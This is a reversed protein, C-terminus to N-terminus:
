GGRGATIKNTRQDLAVAIENVFVPDRIIQYAVDKGDIKVTINGETITVDGADIGFKDSLGSGLAENFWEDEPNNLKLFNNLYKEVDFIDVEPEIYSSASFRGGGIGSATGGGGRRTIQGIGLMDLEESTLDSFPDNSASPLGLTGIFDDWSMNGTIVRALNFSFDKIGGFFGGVGLLFKSIEAILNLVTTSDDLFSALADQFTGDSLSKIFDNMTTLVGELGGNQVFNIVMDGVADIIGRDGAVLVGLEHVFSQWPTLAKEAETKTGLSQELLELEKRYAQLNKKDEDTFYGGQRKTLLDEVATNLEEIRAIKAEYDARETESLTTDDLRSRFADAILKTNAKFSDAFAKVTADDERKGDTWEKILDDYWENIKAAPSFANGSEDTFLAKSEEEVGFLADSLEGLKSILKPVVTDTLETNVPSMIKGWFEAWNDTLTSWQGSLTKSANEMGGYFANGESVATKFADAVEKASIGGKSMRAQLQDMTEGTKQAIYTLPNFGVNILQKYDQTLLKGAMSIQGYVSALTSLKNKDGLAIDGIQQLVDVVGESSVQYSLLTQTADALDSMGFPTAAATQQLQKTLAIAKEESQLLVKFNTQYNEMQINYAVGLKVMEAAWNAVGRVAGGLTNSISQAASLAMTKASAIGRNFADANAGITVFLDFLKM